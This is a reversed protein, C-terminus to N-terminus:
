RYLGLETADGVPELGGRAGAGESAREQLVVRSNLVAVDLLWQLSSRGVVNRGAGRGEASQGQGPQSQSPLSQLEEVAEETTLSNARGATWLHAVSMVNQTLTGTKDTCILSCSGLTEVVDLKKVFVNQQSMRHAIISLLATVTSPLGQPINSVMIVSYM